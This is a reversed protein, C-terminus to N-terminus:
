IFVSQITVTNNLNQSPKYEECEENYMYGDFGETSQLDVKLGDVSGDKYFMYLNQSAKSTLNLAKDSYANGGPMGSSRAFHDSIYASHIHGFIVYDIKVGKMAYRARIKSVASEAKSTNATGNHGHTLLLNQGNISVVCELADTMPIFKIGEKDKFIYQLINHITFDFNDSAVFDVWGVEKGIRSENGCVSAVAINFEANLDLIVQQLIDVASFVIKSRNNANTTVEDMRRDSNILDGTLAVLVDSVGAAKFTSKARTVFKQMRKSLVKLDYSNGDVEKIVEGFHIDSIQLVGVPGQLTKAHTLTPVTLRHESFVDILEKSMEEIFNYARNTERAAKNAVRLQDQLKQRKRGLVSQVSDLARDPVGKLIQGSKVRQITSKSVDYHSALKAISENSERIEQVQHDFLLNTTSM